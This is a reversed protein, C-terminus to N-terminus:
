VVPTGEWEDAPAVEMIKAIAADMDEKTYLESTKYDIKVGEAATEAAPGANEVETKKEETKKEEAKNG